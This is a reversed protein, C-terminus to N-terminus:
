FEGEYYSGNKFKYIGYGERIGDVITGEYRDGNPYDIYKKQYVIDTQVEVTKTKIKQAKWPGKEIM